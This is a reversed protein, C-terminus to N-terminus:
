QSSLSALHDVISMIQFVDAGFFIQREQANARKSAVMLYARHFLEKLKRITDKYVCVDNVDYSVLKEIVSLIDMARITDFPNMKRNVGKPEEHSLKPGEDNTAQLVVQRTQTILIRRM